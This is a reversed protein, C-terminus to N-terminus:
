LDEPIVNTTGDGYKPLGNEYVKKGAKWAAFRERFETPDRRM